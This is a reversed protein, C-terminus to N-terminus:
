QGEKNPIGGVVSFDGQMWISKIKLEWFKWLGDVDRKLEGRYLSGGMLNKEGPELGKGGAFHQSLVTATLSAESEEKGKTMDVRVNSVLHTTDLSFILALGTAHIEPLGKMTRENVEFIADPLFTSSFLTIDNTGFSQVCRHFADTVAERGTPPPNLTAPLIFPCTM